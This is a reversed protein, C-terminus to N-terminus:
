QLWSYFPLIYAHLYSCVPTVVQVPARLPKEAPSNNNHFNVRLVELGPCWIKTAINEELPLPALSHEWPLSAYKSFFPINLLKYRKWLLRPTLIVLNFKLARQQIRPLRQSSNHNNNNTSSKKCPSDKWSSLQKQVQHLKLSLCSDQLGSISSNFCNLLDFICLPHKLSVELM